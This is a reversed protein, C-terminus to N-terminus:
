KTETKSRRFLLYFGVILLIIPLFLQQLPSDGKEIYRHIIDMKFYISILGYCVAVLGFVTRLNM